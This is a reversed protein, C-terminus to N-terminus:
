TSQAREISKLGLLLKRQLRYLERQEQSDLIGCVRNENQEAQNLFLQENRLLKDTATVRKKRHDKEETRVSLYGKKQMKKIMLSLTAHTIGLESCLTQICSGEPHHRILFCLISAQGGSLDTNRTIRNLQTDLSLNLQKVMLLLNEKSFKDTM